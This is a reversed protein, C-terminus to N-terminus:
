HRHHRSGEDADGNGGSRDSRHRGPSSVPAQRYLEGGFLHAPPESSGLEDSGLLHKLSAISSHHRGLLTEILEEMLKEKWACKQCAKNLRNQEAQADSTAQMMDERQEELEKAQM